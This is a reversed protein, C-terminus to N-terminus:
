STSADFDEFHKPEVEAMSRIVCVLICCGEAEAHEYKEDGVEVGRSKKGTYTERSLRELHSVTRRTHVSGSHM